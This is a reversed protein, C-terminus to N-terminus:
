IMQILSTMFDPEFNEPKLPIERQERPVKNVKRYASSKFMNYSLIQGYARYDIQFNKIQLAKKSIQHMGAYQALVEKEKEM